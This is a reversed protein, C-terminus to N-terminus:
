RLSKHLATAIRAVLEDREGSAGADREGPADAVLRGPVALRLASTLLIADARDLRDLSLRDEVAELGLDAALDLLRGRTVGPLLRGDAPPTVLRGGELAWVNAWAAELVEGDPEVILPTAGLRAAAHDVLRRDLWKHAGLGGPLPWPRLPVAAPSAAAGLPAVAAEVAKGPVVVIRLRCPADDGAARLAAAVCADLEAGPRARYLAGASARLRELHRGLALPRGREL